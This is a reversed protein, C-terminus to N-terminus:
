EDCLGYDALVEVPDNGALVDRLVAMPTICGELAADADSESIPFESIDAALRSAPLGESCPLPSSGNGELADALRRLADPLSIPEPM